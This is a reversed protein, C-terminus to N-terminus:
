ENSQNKDLRLGSRDLPHGARIDRDVASRVRKVGAGLSIGRAWRWGAEDDSLGRGLLHTGSKRTM